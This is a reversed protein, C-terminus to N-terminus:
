GHTPIFQIISSHKYLYGGTPTLKFEVMANDRRYRLQESTWGTLRKVDGATVWKDSLGLFMDLKRNVERLLKEQNATM